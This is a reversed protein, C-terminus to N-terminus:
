DKLATLRIETMDIFLRKDESAGINVDGPTTRGEGFLQTINYLRDTACLRRGINRTRFAAEAFAACEKGCWCDFNLLQM